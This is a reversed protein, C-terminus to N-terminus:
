LERRPLTQHWKMVTSSHSTSNSNSVSIFPPLWKAKLHRVFENPSWLQCDSNVLQWDRLQDDLLIRTDNVRWLAHYPCIDRALESGLRCRFSDDEPKLVFAVCDPELVLHVEREIDLVQDIEWVILMKAPCCVGYGDYSKSRFRSLARYTRIRFSCDLHLLM